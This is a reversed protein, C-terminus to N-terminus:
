EFDIKKPLELENDNEKSSNVTLFEEMYENRMKSNHEFLADQDKKKNRFYWYNKFLIVFGILIFPIGLLMCLKLAFDTIDGVAMDYINNECFQYAKPYDKLIVFLSGLSLIAGASTIGMGYFNLRRHRGKNLVDIVSMSIIILAFSIILCYLMKRDRVSRMIQIKATSSGGLVENVADVALSSNASIDHRSADINNDYCYNTIGTKFCNYLDVDQSFSTSYTYKINDIVKVLVMDAVEETFSSTYAEAPFGTKEAIDELRENVAQVTQTSYQQFKKEVFAETRFCSLFVVTSCLVVISFALLVSMLENIVNSASRNFKVAM